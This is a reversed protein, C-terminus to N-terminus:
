DIISINMRKSTALYLPRQRHICLCKFNDENQPFTSPLHMNENCYESYLGLSLCFFFVTLSLCKDGGLPLIHHYTDENNFRM